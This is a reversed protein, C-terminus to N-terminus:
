SKSVAKRIKELEEAMQHQGKVRWGGRFGDKAEISYSTSERRSSGPSSSWSVHVLFRQDRIDRSMVGRTPLVAGPPLLSVEILTETGVEPRGGDPQPLSPSVNVIVDFAAANGTNRVIADMATADALSSEITFIVFPRSTMSSLVKTEVALIRTVHWLAITAAATVFAAVVQAVAMINAASTWFGDTSM